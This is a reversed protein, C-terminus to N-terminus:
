SGSSLSCALHRGSKSLDNQTLMGSANGSSRYSGRSPTDIFEPVKDPVSAAQADAIDCAFREADDGPISIGAFAANLASVEVRKPLGAPVLRAIRRGGWTLDFSAGQYAVRNLLDFLFSPRSSHRRDRGRCVELHPFWFM